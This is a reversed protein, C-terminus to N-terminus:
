IWTPLGFTQSGRVNLEAPESAERSGDGKTNQSVFPRRGAPNVRHPQPELSTQEAPLQM